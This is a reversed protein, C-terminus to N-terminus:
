GLFIINFADHGSLAGSSSGAFWYWELFDNAVLQLTVCQSSQTYQGASDVRLRCLPAMSAGNKFLDVHLVVGTATDKMVTWSVLYAGTVPATFRSNDSSWSSARNLIAGISTIKSSTAPVTVRNQADHPLLAGSFMPQSSMTVRGSADVALQGSGVNLGGAPLALAGTFTSAGTSAVSPTTIGTTGDITVPM